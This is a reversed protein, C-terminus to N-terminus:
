CTAEEPWTDGFETLKDIVFPNLRAYGAGRAEALLRAVESPALQELAIRRYLASHFDAYRELEDRDAATGLAIPRQSAARRVWSVLLGSPNRVTKRQAMDRVQAALAYVDVGEYQGRLRDVLGDEFLRELQTPATM